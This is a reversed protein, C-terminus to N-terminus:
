RSARASRAAATAAAVSAPVRVHGTEHDIELVCSRGAKGRRSRVVEIRIRRKSLLGSAGRASAARPALPSSHGGVPAVLLRVAAFSPAGLASALLLVFGVVEGTEAALQLRRYEVSSLRDFSGIAAGVAACRLSQVLAALVHERQKARIVLTRRLDIGLRSAAPPYFCREADAVVFIKREACAQKGMLMALTWAGAGEATSLLEVLSGTSLEKNPLADELAPIALPVATQRLSHERAEIECIRQTLNELLTTRM